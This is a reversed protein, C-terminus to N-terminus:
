HDCSNKWIKTLETTDKGDERVVKGGQIYGVLKGNLMLRGEEVIYGTGGLHCTGVIKLMRCQASTLGECGVGAFLSAPLFAFFAVTVLSRTNM